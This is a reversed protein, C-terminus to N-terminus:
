IEGYEHGPDFTTWTSATTMTGQSLEKKGSAQMTQKEDRPNSTNGDSRTAYSSGDDYSFVSSKNWNNYSDDEGDASLSAFTTWTSATAMTGQSLEKKGSDQMTQKEDRPNSTNRDSRTAYSSGDDYSLVPIKNWNNYSDDEDDASLSAFSSWTSGTSLRVDQISQEESGTEETETFAEFPTKQHKTDEVFALGVLNDEDDENTEDHMQLLDFRIIRPVPPLSRFYGLINKMYFSGVQERWMDDDDKQLMTYRGGGGYIAGQGCALIERFYNM